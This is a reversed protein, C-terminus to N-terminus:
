LVKGKGTEGDACDFSAARRYNNMTCVTVVRIELEKV